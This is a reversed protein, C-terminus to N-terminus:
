FTHIKKKKAAVHSTAVLIKVYRGTACRLALCSLFLCSFALHRFSVFPFAIIFVCNFMVGPLHIQRRPGLKHVLLLLYGEM